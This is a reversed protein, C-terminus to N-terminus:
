EPDIEKWKRYQFSVTLLAITDVTAYAYEIPGITAPYVEEARIGYTRIAEHTKYSEEVMGHKHKSTRHDGSGGSTDETTTITTITTPISTLQYIEMTGVYNFRSGTKYYSVINSETDVASEQWKDFFSKVDLEADLYFTAEITGEYGHGTVMETAVSTGHKVSASQLDHGPMIISDCLLSVNKNKAVDNSFPPTIVIEYRAPRAFGDSAKMLSQFDNIAGM